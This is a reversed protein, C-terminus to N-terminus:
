ILRLTMIIIFLIHCEHEQIIPNILSTAFFLYICPKCLMKDRKRLSNLLNLLVRASMYSGSNIECGSWNTAQAIYLINGAKSDHMTYPCVTNNITNM